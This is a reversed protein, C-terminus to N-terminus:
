LQWIFCANCPTKRFLISHFSFILWKRNCTPSKRKSNQCRRIFQSIHWKMFQMYPFPNIWRHVCFPCIPVQKRCAFGVQPFHAPMKEQFSRIIGRRRRKEEEKRRARAEVSFYRTTKERRTQWQIALCHYINKTWVESLTTTYHSTTLLFM